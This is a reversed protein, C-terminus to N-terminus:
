RYWREAARVVLQPYNPVEMPGILPLGMDESIRILSDRDIDTIGLALARRVMCMEQGWYYVRSARTNARMRRVEEDRDKGNLPLWIDALLTDAPKDPVYSYADGQIVQIKAAADPPLQAFIGMDEIMGIVEPDFEVVTVRTVSPNLAANAVAWGMGMGMVVTHGSAFRCGIEQSEMEMPTLSMWTLPVDGDHRELVAMGPVLLPDSWYGTCLILDVVKMQWREGQFPRYTPRFLDTQYIPPMTM